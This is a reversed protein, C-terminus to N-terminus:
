LGYYIISYAFPSCLELFGWLIQYYQLWSIIHLSKHLNTADGKSDDYRSDHDDTTTEGTCKSKKQITEKIWPLVQNVRSYFGPKGPTACNFGWSVIGAVVTTNTEKEKYLLPGSILKFLIDM